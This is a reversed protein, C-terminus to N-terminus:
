HADDNFSYSRRIAVESPCPLTEYSPHELATPRRPSPLCAIKFVSDQIKWPSILYPRPFCIPNYSAAQKGRPSKNKRLRLRQNNRRQRSPGPSRPENKCDRWAKNHPLELESDSNWGHNPTPMAANIDNWVRNVALEMESDMDWSDFSQPQPHTPSEVMYPGFLPALPENNLPTLIQM